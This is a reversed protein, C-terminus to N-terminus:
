CHLIHQELVRKVTWIGLQQPLPIIFVSFILSLLSIFSLYRRHSYYIQQPDLSVNLRAFYRPMKKPFVDSLHIYRGLKLPPEAMTKEYNRWIPQEIAAFYSGLNQTTPSRFSCHFPEQSTTYRPRSGYRVTIPPQHLASPSEPSRRLMQCTFKPKSIPLDPPDLDVEDLSVSTSHMYHTKRLYLQRPSITTTPTVAEGINM